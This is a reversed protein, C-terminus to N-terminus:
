CCGIVVFDNAKSDRSPTKVKNEMDLVLWFVLYILM